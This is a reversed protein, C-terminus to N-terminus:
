IFSAKCNNVQVNFLKDMNGAINSVSCLYQGEAGHSINRWTLISTYVSGALSSNINMINSNTSYNILTGNFTWIVHPLPVGM